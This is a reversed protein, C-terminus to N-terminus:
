EVRTLRWGRNTLMAHLGEARQLDRIRRARHSGDWWLDDDDDELEPVDFEIM